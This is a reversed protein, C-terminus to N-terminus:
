KRITVAVVESVTTLGQLIKRGGDDRLTPLQREGHFYEAFAVDTANKTIMEQAVHDIDVMEYIACRGSYGTDNCLDCGVTRPVKTEEPWNFQECTELDAEEWQMCYKCPCRVLRQAIALRLTSAVLYGPIDLNLLRTLVGVANNTHLTSLVVHGTLAAKTAIDATEEDRIEGIMMVDPDHRLVSRLANNFSVRGDADVKIQTVGEVPKEVPDEISILHRQGSQRLHRLSAYLTTTKGSGTPGSLLIIGNPDEIAELFMQFHQDSFGLTELQELESSHDQNLIRLSVHEGHITPITALRMNVIDGVLDLNIQGDLPLRKEAIDLNALIKIRSVLEDYTQSNIKRDFQLAGDVRYLINAGSNSIEDYPEVHIDTAHLVQARNVIEDFLLAVTNLADAKKTELYCRKVTRVLVDTDTVLKPDVTLGTFDEIQDFADFNDLDDVALSLIDDAVSVPLINNRRAVNAPILGLVENRIMIKSLDLKM